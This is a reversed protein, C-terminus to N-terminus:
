PSEHVDLAFAGRAVHAQWTVLVVPLALELAMLVLQGASPWDTALAALGRSVGSLFLLAAFVRVELTREAVRPALWALFLGAGIWWVAYFRLESELNPSPDGPSPVSDAGLFATLAGAVIPVISLVYLTRTLGRAV